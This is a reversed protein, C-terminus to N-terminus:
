NADMVAQYIALTQEVVVQESFLSEARHRAARAMEARLSPQALIRFQQALAGPQSIDNPRGAPGVIWRFTPTDNCAIPLGTSMAELVAIPMMEHLSAIAFVDAARLLGAIQDRPASEIFRISNPSLEAALRKVEDTEKERAGAILLLAPAPVERQWRSFEDILYDMRKHHRKIAAVCLIILADQPLGHQSRAASKDGPRFRNTDVFNPVAFASQRPPRHPQWDELYNPALHQLFSYKRLVATDEETGHALIVRPRSLHL